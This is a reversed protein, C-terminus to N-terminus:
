SELIVTPVSTQQLSLDPTGGPWPLMGVDLKEKHPRIAPPLEFVVSAIGTPVIKSDIESGDASSAFLIVKQPINTQNYSIVEYVFPRARSESKAYLVIRKGETRMIEEAIPTTASHMWIAGPM